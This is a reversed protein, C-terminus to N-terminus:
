KGAASIPIGTIIRLIINIIGLLALQDAADLVFGLQSQVVLAIIAIINIWITKSHYWKKM